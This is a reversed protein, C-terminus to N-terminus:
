LGPIVPLPRTLISPRPSTAPGWSTMPYMSASEHLTLVVVATDMVSEMVVFLCPQFSMSAVGEGITSLFPLLSAM